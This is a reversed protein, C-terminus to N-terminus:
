RMLAHALAEILTGQCFRFGSDVLTGSSVRQDTDIMQDYGEAGLMLKPGFAPTPIASPRHLVRGLTDAFEGHTVPRPAVLNVPGELAETALAHVYGRVTDDLGIWSTWADAKALRGGVGLSFLPIQPALAGGGESLVIGTRLFVARAGAAVVPGAADEWDRVVEALVGDGPAADETLLEGPRRAGYFGVASAQVWTPVGAAAAADALTGTAELRSIRIKQKHKATFRGGISHGSLNIVADAGELVAPDLRHRAPDWRATGPGPRGSRVLRVVDHGSAVLLAAVQTGILGSAGAMVVRRPLAALRTHLALDDRLQRARFAFLGDLQMEVLAEDLPGPLNVPLEWTVRDTIM